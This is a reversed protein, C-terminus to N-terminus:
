GPRSAAQESRLRQTSKGSTQSDVLARVTEDLHEQDFLRGIWRNIAGTLVDERLNITKPHDALAASGPALRRAICRYLARKRIM